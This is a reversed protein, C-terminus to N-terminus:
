RGAMVNGLWAALGTYALYTVYAFVGVIVGVKPRYHAIYALAMGLAVYEWATFIGLNALFSFIWPRDQPNVIIGLNPAYRLGSGLIQTLTSIALGSASIIMGAGVTGTTSRFNVGGGILAFCGWFLLSQSLLKLVGRAIGTQLAATM